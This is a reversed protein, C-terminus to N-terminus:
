VETNRPATEGAMALLASEDLVPVGLSQAKALKSGAAEGALLYDTKKSVSGTVRGGHAEIFAKAEERSMTPLTGTIVFTKGEFTGPATKAGYTLSRFNLGLEELTRLLALNEERHFFGYLVDASIDGVGDVALLEERSLATISWLDPYRAALAGGIHRGVGEMGLAKILRDINQGKSREIGALLNDASRKGWGKRQALEERHRHLRYLDPIERLWGLDLLEDIVAPGFNAIDMCDRSGWYELHRSLQAPCNPNECSAGAAEEEGASSPTLPGGCSPCPLSMMDFSAKEPGKKTVAIIEPIISAAKHIRVTDGVNVGLSKIFEPNHLTARGVRSGELFVPDFLAVPTVRGTRGTQLIIERIVSEKEEPPYKFAVAWRPYKATSGLAERKAIDDLKVVAGDIWYPLGDRRSGIERLASLVGDEGAEMAPVTEFGMARLARLSQSHSHLRGDGALPSAEPATGEPLVCRQVNFALARLKAERVARLDKTRLLGAAANRPNVFLKKGRETYLENLREFEEM